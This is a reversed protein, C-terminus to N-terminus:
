FYIESSAEYEASDEFASDFGGFPSASNFDIAQPDQDDSLM